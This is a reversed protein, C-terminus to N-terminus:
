VGGDDVQASLIDILSFSKESMDQLSALQSSLVWIVIVCDNRLNTGKKSQTSTDQHGRNNKTQLAQGAFRGHKGTFLCLFPTLM